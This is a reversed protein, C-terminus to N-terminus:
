SNYGGGIRKEEQRLRALNMITIGANFYDEPKVLGARCLTLGYQSVRTDEWELVAALPKDGLDVRWMEALDLNIITDSDLYIVKLINKPIAKAAFLRLFTAISFRELIEKSFGATIKEIESACTEEVNHFVVRQNYRGAVYSFKERNDNTLTKDHLIHVTVDVTTNEFISLMSTGAFKSYHGDKDYLSYAVHIM